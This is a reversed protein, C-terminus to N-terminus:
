PILEALRSATAETIACRGELFPLWEARDNDDSWEPPIVAAIAGLLVRDVVTCWKPGVEFPPLDSSLYQRAVHLRIEPASWVSTPSVKFAGFTWSPVIMGHDILFLLDGVMLTNSNGGMRDANWVLADFNITSAWESQPVRAIGGDFAAELFVSAFNPGINAALRHGWHSRNLAAM